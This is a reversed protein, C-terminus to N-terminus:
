GEESKLLSITFFVKTGKNLSSEIWIKGNHKEIIEYTISLGLGVGKSKDTARTFKDFVVGLKEDPIGIGTDEVNVVCRDNDVKCGVKIYGNDTYKLANDLINELVIRIERRNGIVPVPIEETDKILTLGKSQIREKFDLLVEDILVNISFPLFKQNHGEKLSSVDILKEIRDELRALNRLVIQLYKKVKEPTRKVRGSLIYEVYGKSATLPTKLEHTVNALFEDKIKNSKELKRLSKKLEVFTNNLFNSFEGIETDNDLRLDVDKGQKILKIREYLSTIPSAFINSLQIAMVFLIGFSVLLGFILTLFLRRMERKMEFTKILFQYTYKHTVGNKLYPYAIDLYNAKLNYVPISSHLRSTLGLNDNKTPINFFPNTDFLLKGESDYVVIKLFDDRDVNRLFHSLQQYAVADSLSPEIRSGTLKVIASTLSLNIGIFNYKLYRMVITYFLAFIIILVSLNTFFISNFM